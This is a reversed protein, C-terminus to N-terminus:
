CCKRESLQAKMQGGIKEVQKKTEAMTGGNDIVFDAIRVKIELPMQSKIRKLIEDKSISTKEQIRKIQKAITTKVVVLKDVLSSQGAELILPADLIIIGVKIDNLKKKIIRIIEPHMIGNLKKLLNKDSFVIRGLKSRNVTRNKKLIGKGFTEVIRKYVQTQPKLLNHSIKDADIVKAGCSKFMRAVTTKGSGFSGTLGLIIKKSLKQGIM